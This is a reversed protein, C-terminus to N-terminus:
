YKNLSNYHAGLGYMYKHYSLFIPEKDRFEDDSFKLLPAGVQVVHIPIKYLKAIASIELDGGWVATNEIGNCYEEFQEKSCIEGTQSALYPLFDDSNERMYAAVKGRLQKYDIPINHQLLLQDSIANYLCHGNPAIEKITLGMSKTLEAMANKEIEQKNVQDAAEDSDQDQMELRRREQRRQRRSQKKRRDQQPPPAPQRPSEEVQKANIRALLIDTIDENSEDQDSNNDEKKKDENMVGYKMQHEKIEQKHREQLDNELKAVEAQIEKKRKKNGASKKLATIRSILQKRENKHRSILDDYSEEISTSSSKTEDIVSPDQTNVPAFM